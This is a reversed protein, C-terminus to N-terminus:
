QKFDTIASKKSKETFDSSAAIPNESSSSDGYAHISLMETPKRLLELLSNNLKDLDLMELDIIIFPEKSETAAINKYPKFPTLIDFLAEEQQQSCNELSLVFINGNKESYKWKLAIANKLHAGTISDLTEKAKKLFGPVDKKIIFASMEVPELGVIFSSPHLEGHYASALRCPFSVAAHIPTTIIVTRIEGPSPVIHKLIKKRPMHMEICSQTNEKKPIIIQPITVTYQDQPIVDGGKAFFLRPQLNKGSYEYGFHATNFYSTGITDGMKIDRSAPCDANALYAEIFINSIAIDNLIESKIGYQTLQEQTPVGQVLSGFGMYTYGDIYIHQTGLYRTCHDGPSLGSPSEVIQGPYHFLSDGAKFNRNAILTHGIFGSDDKPRVIIFDDYFEKSCAPPKEGQFPGDVWFIKRGFAKRLFELDVKKPETDEAQLDQYLFYPM